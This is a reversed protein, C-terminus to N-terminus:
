KGLMMKITSVQGAANVLRVLYLGPSLHTSVLGQVNSARMVQCGRADYISLSQAKDRLWLGGAVAEILTRGQAPVATIGTAYKISFYAVPKGNVPFSQQTYDFPANGSYRLMRLKQWNEGGYIDFLAPFMNSTLGEKWVQVLLNKSHEYSYPTSFTFDMLQQGGTKINQQGDYVLTLADTGVWGESSTYLDEADTTGVYVKVKFPETEEALDNPTYQFAIGKIKCDKNGLEAATYVTQVTSYQKLMSMPETTSQSLDENKCVVNWDLGPQKVEATMMASTDNEANEDGDLFVHAQLSLTGIESALIPVKVDQFAQKQIAEQIDKFGLVNGAADLIRVSYKNQANLGANMVTVVVYAEKGQRIESPLKVATVAMDNQYVKEVKFNRVAFYSMYNSADSLCHVAMYYNGDADPTFVDAFSRLEGNHTAVIDEHKSIVKSQAKATVDTGMTFEFTHTENENGLKSLMSVRYAQGALLHVPPSLLYDDLAHYGSLYISFNKFDDFGGGSYSFSNGDMNNDITQWKAAKAANDFDEFFTPEYPKGALIPATTTSDGAGANNKPVVTYTYKDFAGMDEDVFSTATLDTMVRKNGPNRVIDYKLSAKDYGKGTHSTLPQDWTLAVNKGALSASLNEVNGPTDSGVFVKVSDTLGKEGSKRYSTLYYTVIGTGPENDAWTCQQGVNGPVTAVVHAPTGRSITVEKFETLADGRWNVTPNTWTLTATQEDGDPATAKLQTVKGAAERSDAGQFPIYLGVVINQLLESEKTVSGTKPNIAYVRQYQDNSTGLWYLVNSNHDFEMTHVYNASIPQGGLKLEKRGMVQFANDPNLQTLYSGTNDANSEIVYANGDYDVAMCWAYFSLSAVKVSSGDTLNIKYVDSLNYDDPNSALAWCTNRSYDYAMEYILFDDTSGTYDTIVTPQGKSFDVSVFALPRVTYTFMKVKYGYYKDGCFAGCRLRNIHLGDDEPDMDAIWHLNNASKSYFSVYHLPGFADQGSAGYMLVGKDENLNVTKNPQKQTAIHKTGPPLQNRHVQAVAMQAVMLLALTSSLFHLLHRM